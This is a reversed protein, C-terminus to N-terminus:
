DTGKLRRTMAHGTKVFGLRELFRATRDSQFSNDNGGIIEDAGLETAWSILNRMLLAAARSGRRDPRVYLVKQTAFFGARYDYTSLTALLFGITREGDDIVWITPNATDIYQYFVEAVRRESFAEGARTEAINARAMEIITPLDYEHALRVLM